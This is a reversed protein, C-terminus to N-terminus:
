LECRGEYQVPLNGILKLLDKQISDNFASILLM